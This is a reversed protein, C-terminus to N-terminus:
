PTEMMGKVGGLMGITRNIIISIMKDQFENLMVQGVGKQKLAHLEALDKSGQVLAVYGEQSLTGAALKLSWRKIDGEVGSLFERSDKVADKGLKLFTAHAEATIEKEIDSLLKKVEIM